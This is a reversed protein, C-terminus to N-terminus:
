GFDQEASGLVLSGLPMIAFMIILHISVITTPDLMTASNYGVATRQQRYHQFVSYAM